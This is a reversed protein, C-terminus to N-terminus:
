YHHRNGVRWTSPPINSYNWSNKKFDYQYRGSRYRRRLVFFDPGASHIKWGSGLIEYNSNIPLGSKDGINNILFFRNSDDDCHIHVICGQKLVKWYIPNKKTKKFQFSNILLSDQAQAFVNCTTIILLFPFLLNKMTRKKQQFNDFLVKFKNYFLNVNQCYTKCM